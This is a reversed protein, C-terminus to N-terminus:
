RVRLLFPSFVNRGGVETGCTPRVKTEAVVNASRREATLLAREGFCSYEEMRRLQKVKERGGSRVIQTVAAVGEKLIFFTDGM